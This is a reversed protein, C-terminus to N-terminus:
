RPAIRQVCCTRAHHSLSGAQNASPPMAASTIATSRVNSAYKTGTTTPSAPWSTACHHVFTWRRVFTWLPRDPLTGRSAASAGPAPAPPSHPHHSSGPPPGARHQHPKGTDRGIVCPHARGLVCSNM